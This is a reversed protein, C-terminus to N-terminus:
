SFNRLKIIQTQTDCESLIYHVTHVHKYIPITKHKDYLPFNWNIKM